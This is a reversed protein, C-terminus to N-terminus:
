AASLSLNPGTELNIHTSGGNYVLTLKINEPHEETGGCVLNYYLVDLSM